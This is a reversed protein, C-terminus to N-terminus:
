HASYLYIFPLGFAEYPNRRTKSACNGKYNRRYTHFEDRRGTYKIVTHRIGVDWFLEISTYQLVYHLTVTLEIVGLESVIAPTIRFWM